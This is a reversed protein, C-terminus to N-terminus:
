HHAVQEEIRLFRILTNIKRLLDCHSVDEFNELFIGKFTGRTDDGISVTVSDAIAMSIALCPPSPIM